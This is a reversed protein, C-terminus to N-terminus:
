LAQDAVGAAGGSSGPGDTLRARVQAADPHQLDDLIALAQRWARHAAVLQGAAHHTRGLHDFTDAQNYRDGLPRYLDLANTYATIAQDHDGLHRHIHGISDWTDAEGHRNDAARHLELAEECYARARRHQGLLTYCWGINNLACAAGAEDGIARRLEFAQHCHPLAQHYDGQQECLWAFAQHTAAQGDRDALRRQLDLARWLYTEADGYGRLRIHARGLERLAISQAAEDGLRIAAALASLQTVQWDHWHGHRDFFDALTWPIQWAHRDMGAEAAHAAAALLVDHEAVFWDMAAGYDDLREAAAETALGIPRRAPNLLRAAAHGTSLYHDLVRRVAARRDVEGDQARTREAAYARLLDHCAFRGPVHENLLHARTLEGLAEQAVEAPVGALAAAAARSIDPGPHLGLLRFLRAASSSLQRFSWSFVARVDSAVDGTGLADLRGRSDLLEATLASLPFGPRAAARAAAITLALPLRACLEVLDAVAGSEAMQGAELRRALLERAEGPTLVDLTILHADDTAALGTLQNRSTVVVVCGPSGPLLPRVQEADRANDVVILMRRGALLSRYMGTRGELSAPIQEPPVAFADLFGLIADEPPMPAGSPDFGRLNVYLQGDPFRDAVQHAWHLALATKGIGATGDIASIVMTGGAGHVRDFLDSLLRLEARRGSFRPMTAPLQRPVLHTTSLRAARPGAPLDLAADGRLIQQHLRQLASAPAVGLEADLLRYIERYADLAEDQRGSRYLALMLQGHLRERLPHDIVLKRLEPIVVDHAGRVLDAEIRAELVASRQEELRAAEADITPAPPVDSLPRGRWLSLADALLTAAREADGTELARLGATKLRAFRAADLDDAVLRMQYGSTRTVLVEGRPDHLSRRLRMVYQQILNTATKPAREGWVEEVLRDTGVPRANDLLLVALLIRQKAAAVAAWQSGDFVELPGLIRFRM